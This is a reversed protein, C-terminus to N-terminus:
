LFRIARRSRAMGTSPLAQGLIEEPRERLVDQIFEIATLYEIEQYRHRLVVCTRGDVVDQEEVVPPFDCTIDSVVDQARALVATTWVPM